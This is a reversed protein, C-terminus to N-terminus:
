QRSASLAISLEKHKSLVAAYANKEPFKPAM